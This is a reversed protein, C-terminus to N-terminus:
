KHKYFDFLEGFSVVFEPDRVLAERKREYEQQTIFTERNTNKTVSTSGAVPPPPEARIGGISFTNIFTPPPTTITSFSSSKAKEREKEREEEEEERSKPLTFLRQRMKELRDYYKIVHPDVTMRTPDFGDLFLGELSTARSVGVYFMGTEFIDRAGVIVKKLDMGQSRHITIAWGYQLPIAEATAKHLEEKTYRNQQLALTLSRVREEASRNADKATVVTATISSGGSNKDDDNNLKQRKGGSETENESHEKMRKQIEADTDTFHWAHPCLFFYEGKHDDFEVVPYLPPMHVAVPAAQTKGGIDRINKTTVRSTALGTTTNSHKMPVTENHAFSSFDHALKACPVVKQTGHDISKETESHVTAYAGDATTGWFDDGGFVDASFIGSAEAEYQQEFIQITKLDVVLPQQARKELEESDLSNLSDSPFVIGHSEEYNDYPAGNEGDIDINCNLSQGGERSGTERSALFSVEGNAAEAQQKEKRKKLTVSGTHKGYLTRLKMFDSECLFAAVKGGSGNCVGFCPFKNVMLLVRAGVKLQIKPDVPLNDDFFKKITEKENASVGPKFSINLDYSHEAFEAPLKAYQMANYANVSKCLAYIRTADWLGLIDEDTKGRTGEPDKKRAARTLNDIRRQHLTTIHVNRNSGRRIDNLMQIFSKDKQRFIKTLEIQWPFAAEWLSSDFAYRERPQPENRPYVPPLQFFDGFFMLQLEGFCVAPRKRFLRGLTDLKDFLTPPLMSTEDLMLADNLAWRAITKNRAPSPGGFSYIRQALENAPERGLGVGAFRHITSGEIPISARGTTATTVHHVGQLDFEQKTVRLVHSKGAGGPGSIFVNERKQVTFLLILRQDCSLTRTIERVGREFTVQNELACEFLFLRSLAEVRCFAGFTHHLNRQRLFQLFYQLLVKKDRALVSEDHSEEVEEENKNDNGHFLSATRINTPAGAHYIVLRSEHHLNASSNLEIMKWPRETGAGICNEAYSSASPTYAFLASLHEKVVALCGGLLATSIGIFSQKSPTLSVSTSSTLSSLQSAVSLVQTPLPSPTQTTKANHTMEMEMVISPSNTSLQWLICFLAESLTKPWPGRRLSPSYDLHTPCGLIHVYTEDPIANM